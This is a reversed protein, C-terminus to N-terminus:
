VTSPEKDFPVYVSASPDMAVQRSSWIAFRFAWTTAVFASIGGLFLNHDYPPALNQGTVIGSIFCWLSYALVLAALGFLHVVFRRSPSTWDGNLREHRLAAAHMLTIWTALSWGIIAYSDGINVVFALVATIYLGASAWAYKEQCASSWSPM